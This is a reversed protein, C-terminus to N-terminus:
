PPACHPFMKPLQYTNFLASIKLTRIGALGDIIFGLYKVSTLFFQCREQSLRLGNDHIRQLVEEIRKCLEDHLCSVFTEGNEPDYFFESISNTLVDISPKSVPAAQSSQHDALM